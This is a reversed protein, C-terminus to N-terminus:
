PSERVPANTSSKALGVSLLCEDRDRYSEGSDAIKRNNFALLRWRWQGAGDKYIWYFMAVGDGTPPLAAGARM